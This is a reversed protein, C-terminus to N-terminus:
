AMEIEHGEVACRVFISQAETDFLSSPLWEAMTLPVDYNDKERGKGELFYEFLWWYHIYKRFSWILNIWFTFVDVIANFPFQMFYKDLYDIFSLRDVLVVM